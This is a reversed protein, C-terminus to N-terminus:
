ASCTSSQVQYFPIDTVKVKSSKSTGNMCVKEFISGVENFEEVKRNGM